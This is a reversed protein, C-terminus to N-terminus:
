EEVYNHIFDENGEIREGCFPCFNLPIGYAKGDSHIVIEKGNGMDAILAIFRDAVTNCNTRVPIGNLSHDECYKCM